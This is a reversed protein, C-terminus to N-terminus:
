ARKAEWDRSMTEGNREFEIKGKISDASLKGSYKQTFTQGNRERVVQFSVTGDKVAGEKIETQNDDRGITGTLKEGDQKLKLTITIADGNQPTFTWTWTGTATKDDARAPASVWSLALTVALALFFVMPRAKMSTGGGSLTRAEDTATLPKL